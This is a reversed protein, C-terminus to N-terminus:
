SIILSEPHQGIRVPLLSGLSEGARAREQLASTRARLDADSLASVEPELRNVLAVTDKYRRKAAEGDDGGGGGFM